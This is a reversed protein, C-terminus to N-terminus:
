LPPDCIKTTTITTTTVVCAGKAFEHYKGLTHCYLQFSIIENNIQVHHNCIISRIAVHSFRQKLKNDRLM